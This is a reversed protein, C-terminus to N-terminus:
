EVLQRYDAVTRAALGNTSDTLWRELFQGVTLKDDTPLRGEAAEGLRTRLHAEAQKKDGHYTETRRRREGTTPDDYWYTLRWTKEGRPELGGERRAM